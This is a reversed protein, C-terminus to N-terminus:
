VVQQLCNHLMSALSRLTGHALKKEDALYKFHAVIHTRKLEKMPMNAIAYGKVYWDFYNQLNLLTTSKVKGKKFIEIYQPYWAKLTMNALDTNRGSAVDLQHQSIKKKLENLDRDYIYYPKGYLVYRYVFRGDARESVGDPLVRGDRTKRKSVRAM